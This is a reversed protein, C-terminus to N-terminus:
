PLVSLARADAREVAPTRDPRASPPALRAGLRMLGRGLVARPSTAARSGGVGRGSAFPAAAARDASRQRAITMIMEPHM